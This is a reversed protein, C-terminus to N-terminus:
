YGPTVKQIAKAMQMGNNFFEDMIKQKNEESCTPTGDKKAM